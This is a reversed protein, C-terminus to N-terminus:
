SKPRSFFYQNRQQESTLQRSFPNLLLTISSREQSRSFKRSFLTMVLFIQTRFLAPKVQLDGSGGVETVTVRTAVELLRAKRLMQSDVPPMEQRYVNLIIEAAKPRLETNAYSTNVLTQRLSSAIHALGECWEGLRILADANNLISATAESSSSRAPYVVVTTRIEARAGHQDFVQVVVSLERQALVRLYLRRSYAGARKVM